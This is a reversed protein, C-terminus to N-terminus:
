IGSRLCRSVTSWYNDMREPPETELLERCSEITKVIKRQLAEMAGESPKMVNNTNAANEISYDFSQQIFRQALERDAMLLAAFM